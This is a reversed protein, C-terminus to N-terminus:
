LEVDHRVLTPMSAADLRLVTVRVLGAVMGLMQM